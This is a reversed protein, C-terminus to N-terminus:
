GSKAGLFEGTWRDWTAGCFPCEWYSIGDYKYPDEVGILKSFHHPESYSKKEMAQLEKDTKDKYYKRRSKRWVKWIRGSDWSQNCKPCLGYENLKRSSSEAKLEEVISIIQCMLFTDFLIEKPSTLEQAIACVIIEKEFDIDVKRVM